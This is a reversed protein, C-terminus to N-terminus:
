APVSPFGDFTVINDRHIDSVTVWGGSADDAREFIMSSGEPRARDASIFLVADDVLTIRFHKM